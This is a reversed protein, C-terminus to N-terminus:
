ECDATEQLTVKTLHEFNWMHFKGSTAEVSHYALISFLRYINWFFLPPCQIPFRLMFTVTTYSGFSMNDIKLFRRSFYSHQFPHFCRSESLYHFGLMNRSGSRHLYQLTIKLINHLTHSLWLTPNCLATVTSYASTAHCVIEKELVPEINSVREENECFNM